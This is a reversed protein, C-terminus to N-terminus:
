QAKEVDHENKIEKGEPNRESSKKKIANIKTKASAKVRRLCFIIKSNLKLLLKGATFRWVTFGLLCILLPYARLKGSTLNYQMVALCVSSVLCFLIDAFFQKLEKRKGRVFLMLADYLVRLLAGVCFAFLTEALTLESDM